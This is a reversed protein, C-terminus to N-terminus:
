AVWGGPRLGRPGARRVCRRVLWVVLGAGCALWGGVLCAVAVGPGGAGAADRVGVLVVSGRVPTASGGAVVVAGDRLVAMAASTAPPPLWLSPGPSGTRVRWGPGASWRWGQPWRRVRGPWM